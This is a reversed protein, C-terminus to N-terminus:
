LSAGFLLVCSVCGISYETHGNMCTPAVASPMSQRGPQHETERGVSSDREIKLYKRVDTLAHRYGQSYAERFKDSTDVTPPVKVNVCAPGVQEDTQTLVSKILVEINSTGSGM